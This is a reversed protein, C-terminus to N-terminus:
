WFMALDDVSFTVGFLGGPRGAVPRSGTRVKRSAGAMLNATSFQALCCSSLGERESAIRRRISNASFLFDLFAVPGVSLDDTAQARIVFCFCNPERV